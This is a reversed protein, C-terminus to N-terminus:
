INSKLYKQCRGSTHFVRSEEESRTLVRRFPRNGNSDQQLSVVRAFQAQGARRSSTAQPWTTPMRPPGAHRVVSIRRRLGIPRVRTDASQAPRARTNRISSFSDDMPRSYVWHIAMRMAYPAVRALSRNLGTKQRVNKGPEEVTGQGESSEHPYNERPISDDLQRPIACATLGLM